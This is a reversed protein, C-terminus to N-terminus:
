LTPSVKALRRHLKRLLVRMRARSRAKVRARYRARINAISAGCRCVVPRPRCFTRLIDRHMDGRELPNLFRQMAYDRDYVVHSLGLLDASSPIPSPALGDLTALAAATLM